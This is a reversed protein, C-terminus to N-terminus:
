GHEAFIINNNESTVGDIPKAHRGNTVADGGGRTADNNQEWTNPGVRTAVTCRQSILLLKSAIYTLRTHQCIENATCRTKLGVICWFVVGFGM